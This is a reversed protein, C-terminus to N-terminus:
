AHLLEPIEAVRCWPQMIICEKHSKLLAVLSFAPMLPRSRGGKQVTGVKLLGRNFQTGLDTDVFVQLPLEGALPPMQARISRGLANCHDPVNRYEYSIIRGIHPSIPINEQQISATFWCDHGTHRRIIEAIGSLQPAIREIVPVCQCQPPVVPPHFAEPVQKCLEVAYTDVVKAPELGGPMHRGTVLGSNLTRPHGTGSPMKEIPQDGSESRKRDNGFIQTDNRLLNLRKAIVVFKGAHLDQLKREARTRGINIQGMVMDLVTDDIGAGM